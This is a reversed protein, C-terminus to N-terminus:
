VVAAEMVIAANKTATYTLVDTASAVATGDVKWDMPAAGESSNMQMYLVQGREVEVDTPTSSAPITAILEGSGNEKRITINNTGTPTGTIDLRVSLTVNSPTPEPTDGGAAYEGPQILVTPQYGYSTAAAAKAEDTSYPETAGSRVQLVMMQTSCLLSNNVERTHVIMAGHGEANITLKGDASSFSAHESSLVDGCIAENATDLTLEIYETQVSPFRTEGVQLWVVRCLGFTIKDGQKYGYNNAIIAASLEGVTAQSEIAFDGLSLDSTINETIWTLAIPSLSGQAVLCRMPYAAGMAAQEKTFYVNGASLNKKVFMNYDSVNGPKGEWAKKEFASIAKYLNVVGALRIRQERQAYSSGNGASKNNYIRGSVITMGGQQRFSLQGANGKMDGKILGHFKAM